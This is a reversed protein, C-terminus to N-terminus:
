TVELSPERTRQEHNPIAQLDMAGSFHLGIQTFVGLDHHLQQWAVGWVQIGLFSAVAVHLVVEDVRCRFADVLDLILSVSSKCAKTMTGVQDKSEKVM